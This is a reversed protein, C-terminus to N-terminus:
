MGNCVTGLDLRVLWYIAFLAGVTRRYEDDATIGSSTGDTSGAPRSVYLLLEPFCATCDAHFQKLSYSPELLSASAKELRMRRTEATAWARGRAADAQEAQRLVRRVVAGALPAETSSAETLSPQSGGLRGLGGLRGVEGLGGLDGGSSVLAASCSIEQRIEAARDGLTECHPIPLAGAAAAFFLPEPRPERNPERNTRLLRTM